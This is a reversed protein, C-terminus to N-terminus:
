APSLGTLWLHCDQDRTETDSREKAWVSFCVTATSECFLNDTHRERESVDVPIMQSAAERRLSSGAAVARVEDLADVDRSAKTDCAGAGTWPQRREASSILGRFDGGKVRQEALAPRFGHGNVRRAQVEGDIGSGALAGWRIDDESLFV